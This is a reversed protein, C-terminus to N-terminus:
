TIYQNSSQDTILVLIILNRTRCLNHHNYRWVHDSVIQEYNPPKMQITLLLLPRKISFYQYSHHDDVRNQQIRYGPIYISINM